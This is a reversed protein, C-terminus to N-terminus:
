VGQVKVFTRFGRTGDLSHTVRLARVPGLDGSPLGSVTFVDGPRLTPQGVLDVSGSLTSRKVREAVATSLEEALSRSHFAGIVQVGGAGSTPEPNLWHWKESGAESASGHAAFTAPIQEASPGARWALVEAGYRLTTPSPLPSISVFRLGGSPSCTIESGCLDALDLLHGWVSRRHDVAYYAIEADGDVSDVTVEASSALDRVIDAVTQGVYTQSKRTQSLAITPAHSTIITAEATREATTVSGSFVDEEADAFGLKLELADGPQASAFKSRPWLALEAADHAGRTLTVKLALLGAEAATLKKDALTIVASPRPPKM